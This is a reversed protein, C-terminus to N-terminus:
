EILMSPSSTILMVTPVTYFSDQGYFVFLLLKIFVICLYSYIHSLCEGIRLYEM